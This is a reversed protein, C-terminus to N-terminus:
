GALDGCPVNQYASLHRARLSDRLGEAEVDQLAQRLVAVLAPSTGKSAVMWLPASLATVEFLPELSDGDFGERCALLRANYSSLPIADVRGHFLMRLGRSVHSYDVYDKGKEFGLREVLENTNGKAPVGVRLGQRQMDPLADAAIDARSKLRFFYVDYPAIEGIWQFSEERAPTRSMSFMLTNPETQAIRFARRWPLIDFGTVSVGVLAESRRMVERVIEVTYGSPESDKLYQLPEYSQAVIRVGDSTQAVASGAGLCGALAAAAILRNAKM